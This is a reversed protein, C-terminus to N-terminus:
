LVSSSSWGPHSSNQNKGPVEFNKYWNYNLCYSSSKNFSLSITVIKEIKQLNGVLFYKPHQDMLDTDMPFVKHNGMESFHARTCVKNVFMMESIDLFENEDVFAM